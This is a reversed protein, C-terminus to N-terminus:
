GNAAFAEVSQQSSVTTASESSPQTGASARTDSSISAACNAPTFAFIRSFSRRIM